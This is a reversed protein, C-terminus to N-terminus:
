LLAINQLWNQASYNQLSSILVILAPIPDNLNMCDKINIELLQKRLDSFGFVWTLKTGLEISRLIMVESTGTYFYCHTQPERWTSFRQALALQDSLFSPSNPRCASSFFWRVRLDATSCAPTNEFSLNITSKRRVTNTRSTCDPLTSSVTHFRWWSTQPGECYPIFHMCRLYERLSRCCENVIDNKKFIM